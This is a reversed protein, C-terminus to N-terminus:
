PQPVGSSLFSKSGPNGFIDVACVQYRYSNWNSLDDDLYHTDKTTAIQGENRYIIYHDFDAERNPSWRLILKGDGANMVALEKVRGPPVVDGKLLYAGKIAIAGDGTAVITLTGASNSLFKALGQDDTLSNVPAGDNLIFSVLINVAPQGFDDMVKIVLTKGVMCGNFDYGDEGVITLDRQPGINGSIPLIMLALAIGPIKASRNTPM